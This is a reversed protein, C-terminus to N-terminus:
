LAPTTTVAHRYLAPNCQEIKVEGQLLHGKSYETFYCTNSKPDYNEVWLHDDKWTMSLHLMGEPVSMSMTGGYNKVLKQEFDLYYAAWGAAFVIFSCIIGLKWKKFRSFGWLIFVSFISLSFWYLYTVM